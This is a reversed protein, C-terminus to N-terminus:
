HKKGATNRIVEFLRLRIFYVNRWQISKSSRQVDKVRKEEEKRTKVLLMYTILFIMLCTYFSLLGCM